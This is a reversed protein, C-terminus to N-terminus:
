AVTYTPMPEVSIVGDMARMEDATEASMEARYCHYSRFTLYPTDVCGLQRLRSLEEPTATTWVKVKYIM